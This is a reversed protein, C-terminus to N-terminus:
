IFVRLNCIPKLLLINVNFISGNTEINKLKQFYPIYM